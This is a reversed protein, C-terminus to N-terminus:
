DFGCDFYLRRVWVGEPEEVLRHSKRHGLHAVRAKPDGHPGLDLRGRRLLYELYHRAARESDPAAAPELGMAASSVQFRKTEGAMHMVLQRKPFGYADGSFAARPLAEPTGRGGAVTRRRATAAPRSAAAITELSIVGRRVFASKLPDSYKGGFLNGESEILHAAVQSYIDPVVPTSPIADVLLRGADQSVPLLDGESPSASRAVLMNALADFFGGTFVRSFSHPESSLSSSPASPPLTEPAQYFFSNAANRLCDPDVLDPRSQRIAWGLQEALRSLRSTRNLTGATDALIAQRFSPLQLASLIASIDAFSEHFAAVEASMADWLEPRLVDLVAHGEEHCLVDPSEGSYVTTGDADGHFFSLGNRDYYANFDVGVDLNVRLPDGPEWAAGAPLLAGWFDATRRVAEAAVWYRFGPTGQDYVQPAPAPVVNITLPLPRAGLDPVPRVIPQGGSAPDDEWGLIGQDAAEKVRGKAKKTRRANKKSAM